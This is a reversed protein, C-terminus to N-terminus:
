KATRPAPNVERVPINHKAAYAKGTTGVANYLEEFRAGYKEQITKELATIQEAPAGEDYLKALQAYENKYVPIVFEYLAITANLMDKTEENSGIAKVKEFNTEITELKTKVVEARKMPATAMTKEDVLKVSPSALERQMGAGAFGFLLNTNLVVRAFLQDPPPNGCSFLVFTFSFVLLLPLIKKM